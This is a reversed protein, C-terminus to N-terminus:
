ILFRENWQIQRNKPTCLGNDSGLFVKEVIRAVWIYMGHIIKTKEFKRIKLNESRGVARTQILTTSCRLKSRPNKKQGKHMKSPLKMPIQGDPEKKGQWVKIITM